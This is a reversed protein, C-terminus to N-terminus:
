EHFCNVVNKPFLFPPTLRVRVNFLIDDKKLLYPRSEAENMNIYKLDSLSWEGDQLNLMRLMPVGIREDTALESIGYQVMALSNRLKQIPYKCSGIETMFRKMNVSYNPDWRQGSVETSPVQFFRLSELPNSPSKTKKIGLEHLLLDDISNLLAHAETDHRRKDDYADQLLSVVRRQVSLPASPVELNGYEQANINPQGAARQVAQVWQKFYPLQSIAFAYEPLLEETRFRFRILYGAFFCPYPVEAAKHIYAKGVTNGSRAFLLDGDRLLYQAEVKAATAGLEASLIGEDSIDTIRVYRPQDFATRELGREGAGYQPPASLFERLKRPPYRFDHTRRRFLVMEPDLRDTLESFQALFATPSKINKSLTFTM